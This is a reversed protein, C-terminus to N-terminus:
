PVGSARGFVTELLASGRAAPSQRIRREEEGIRM